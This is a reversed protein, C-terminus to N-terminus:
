RCPPLEDVYRVRASRLGAFVTEDVIGIERTTEGHVALALLTGPKAPAEGYTPDIPIWGSDTRVLDWRHRVFRGRDNRFGTVLSVTFGRERAIAAFLRAHATCDGRGLALAQGASASPADLEDDLMAATRRSLGRLVAATQRDPAAAPDISVYWADGCRAISQGPLQDPPTAGTGEVVLNPTREGTVTMASSDVIEPPDFPDDIRAMPVRVASLPEGSDVREVTGDPRLSITSASVGAATTATARLTSDSVPEITLEASAFGFGALFVPGSFRREGTRAMRYVVLESPESLAPLTVGIEDGFQCRWDGTGIREALGTTTTAGARTEVYVRLPHLERDTDISIRTRSQVRTSSRVVSVVETRELRHGSPTRSLEEVAHGIRQGDWLLLYARESPPAPRPLDLDIEDGAPAAGCGAILVVLLGRM